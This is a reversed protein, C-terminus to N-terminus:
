LGDQAVRRDFELVTLAFRRAPWYCAAALLRRGRRVSGLGFSELIDKTNIRILDELATNAM